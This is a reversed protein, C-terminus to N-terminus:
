KEWLNIKPNYEDCRGLQEFHLTEPVLILNIEDTLIPNLNQIINPAFLLGVRIEKTM